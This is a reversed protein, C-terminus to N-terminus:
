QCCWKRAWGRRFFRIHLIGCCITCDLLQSAVLEKCDLLGLRPLGMLLCVPKSGAGGGGTQGGDVHGGAAVLRERELAAEMEVHRRWTQAERRRATQRSRM